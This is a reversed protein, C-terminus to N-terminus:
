TVEVTIEMGMARHNGISCYFVYEGPELDVSLTTTDGPGVDDSEAVDSGDREVVLDHTASGNNVVQIEYSGAALSDEDLSISFDAETATISEAESASSTTAPASAGASSDLAPGSSTTETAPSATDDPEDSGCATLTALAIAAVAAAGSLRLPRRTREPM